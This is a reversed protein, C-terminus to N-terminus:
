GVTPLIPGRCSTRLRRAVPNKQELPRLVEGLLLVPPIAALAPAQRAFPMDAVPAEPLKADLQAPLVVPPKPVVAPM